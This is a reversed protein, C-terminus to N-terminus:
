RVGQRIRSWADDHTSTGSSGSPAVHWAWKRPNGACQQWVLGKAIQEGSDWEEMHMLAHLSETVAQIVWASRRPLQHAGVIASSTDKFLHALIRNVEYEGWQSEHDALEKIAAQAGADIGLSTLIMSYERLDEYQRDLTLWAPPQRRRDLAAQYLDTRENLEDMAQLPLNQTTYMELVVRTERHDRPVEWDGEPCAPPDIDWFDVFRGLGERTYFPHERTDADAANWGAWPQPEEPHGYSVGDDDEDVLDLDEDEDDVRHILLSEQQLQSSSPRSYM